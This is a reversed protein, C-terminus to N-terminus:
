PLRALRKHDAAPAFAETVRPANLGAVARALARRYCADMRTVADIDTGITGPSERCAEGAARRIRKLMIAADKAQSLDLDNYTVSVTPAAGPAPPAALAPGGVAMLAFTTLLAIKM